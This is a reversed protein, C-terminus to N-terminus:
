AMFCRCACWISLCVLEIPLRQIPHLFLCHGYEDNSKLRNTITVSLARTSVRTHTQGVHSAERAVANKEAWIFLNEGM